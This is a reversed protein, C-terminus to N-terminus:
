VAVGVSANQLASAHTARTFQSRLVQVAQRLSRDTGEWGRTVTASTRLGRKLDWAHRVGEVYFTITGDEGRPSLLQIRQGVRLNPWGRAFDLEGAYLYPSLAFWDRAQKRYEDLVGATNASEGQAAYSTPIDMRRLGHKKISLTDVESTLAEQLINGQEPFPKVRITFNNLRTAGNKSIRRGSLDQPSIVLTPVEFWTDLDSEYPFPRKRLEIAMVADEISLTDEPGPENGASDVLIPRLENFQPDSWHQALDWLTNGSFDPYFNPLLAFRDPLDASDRALYKFQEVFYSDSPMSPIGPPLKWTTGLTQDQLETLFHKLMAEVVQSPRATGFASAAGLAQAANLQALEGMTANVYVPTKDWISSFSRGSLVYSRVTTEGSISTDEVPPGDIIGRLALHSEGFRNLELDVWDDDQIFTRSFEGDPDKYRIQFSAGPEGMVEEYVMGVIGPSQSIENAKGDLVYPGKGQPIGLSSYIPDDGHPYLTVRIGSTETGQYGPTLFKRKSKTM